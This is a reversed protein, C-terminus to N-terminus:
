IRGREGEKTEGILNKSSRVELITKENTMLQFMLSRGFGDM